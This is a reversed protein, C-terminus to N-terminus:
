KAPEALAQVFATGDFALFTATPNGTPSPILVILQWYQGGIENAPFHRHDDRTVGAAGAALAAVVSNRDDEDAGAIWDLGPKHSAKISGAAIDRAYTREGPAPSCVDPPAAPSTGPPGLRDAYQGVRFIRNGLDLQVLQLFRCRAILSCISIRRALVALSISYPRQARRQCRAPASRTAWVREENAM